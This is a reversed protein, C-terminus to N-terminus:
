RPQVICCVTYLCAAPVSPYVISAQQCPVAQDHWVGYLPAQLVGFLISVSEQQLLEAVNPYGLRHLAQELIRIYETRNILGKPGIREPAHQSTGNALTMTNSATSRGTCAQGLIESVFASQKGASAGGKGVTLTV